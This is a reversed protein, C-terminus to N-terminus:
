KQPAKELPPLTYEAASSVMISKDRRYETLLAQREATWGGATGAAGTLAALGIRRLNEDEHNRLRNEIELLEEATRSRCTQLTAIAAQMLGFHLENKAKLENLLDISASPKLVMICLKIRFETARPHDSIADIIKQTDIERLSRLWSFSLEVKSMFNLMNRPKNIISRAGEAIVDPNKGAYIGFLAWSAQTVETEAESALSRLISNKLVLEKDNTVNAAVMQLAKSRTASSDNQLAQNYIKMLERKEPKSLEAMPFRLAIEAYGSDGSDLMKSLIKWTEPKSPFNWLARILAGRVDKHLDGAELETLWSFAEESKTDAALRVIEKFVTIKSQPVAQLIELAQASSMLLIADRMAYIAYRAREDNLMSILLPLAKGNDLKAIWLITSFRISEDKNDLSSMKSLFDINPDPMRTLRLVASTREGHASKESEAVGMLQESYISQQKRTWRYYPFKYYPIFRTKGTGFRGKFAHQGLYPTLLSQKKTSLFNSVSYNHSWSQDIKLLEPVLAAFRKKDRQQLIGLATQSNAAHSAAKALNCLAEAFVSHELLDELWAAFSTIHAESEKSEWHHILSLLEQSFEQLDNKLMFLRQDTIFRPHRDKLLKCILAFAWKKHFPFIQGLLRGIYFLSGNSLDPAALADAIVSDVLPLSPEKFISPPLYSLASLFALRVPDAENKKQHLRELTEQLYQRNYKLASVLATYALARLEPEPNNILAQTEKLVSEWDLFRVFNMKDALKTQLNPLAVMEQAAEIRLSEPLLEVITASVCGDANRWGNSCRQYLKVRLETSFRKFKATAASEFRKQEVSALVQEDTLKHLSSSIDSGGYNQQASLLSVTEQPLVRLLHLYPLKSAQYLQLLLEFLELSQKRQFEVLNNFSGRVLALLEMDDPEALKALNMLTEYCLLPHQYSFRRADQETMRELLVSIKSKVLEASAFYVLKPFDRSSDQELKLIFRDILENKKCKNLRKLLKRREKLKLQLLIEYLQEDSCIRSAFIIAMKRLVASEDQTMHFILESNKSSEAAFTALHREYFNGRALEEILLRSDANGQASQEGLQQAEKIRESYDMGELKDLLIQVKKSNTSQESNKEPHKDAKGFINKFMKLPDIEDPM